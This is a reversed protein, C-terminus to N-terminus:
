SLIVRENAKGESSIPKVMLEVMTKAIAAQVVNTRDLCDVCNIRFLGMQENLIAKQETNRRSSLRDVSIFRLLSDYWFFRMERFLHEKDLLQLLALVNGFQLAKSFVLFSKSEFTENLFPGFWFEHFDFTIYTLQPSNYKVVHEYFADNLLNERGGEDVLSILLLSHGRTRVLEDEVHKVFATHSETFALLLLRNSPCLLHSLRLCYGNRDVPSVSFSPSLSLVRQFINRM